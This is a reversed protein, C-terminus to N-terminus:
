MLVIGTGSSHGIHTIDYKIDESFDLSNWFDEMKQNVHIDDFILIGSWKKDKLFKVMEVEQQGDHPDVDICIVKVNDYEISDDERFDVIKWSINKKDINSAGQEIINYSIIKNKLNYSLALASNGYETGVDLIIGNNFLTSIYAYLKFPSDGPPYLLNNQMKFGLKELDSLDIDKIDKESITTLHKFIDM